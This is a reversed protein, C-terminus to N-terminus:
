HIHQQERMVMLIQSTKDYNGADIREQLEESIDGSRLADKAEDYKARYAEPDYGEIRQNGFVPTATCTCHDHSEVADEDSYTYGLSARMQCFACADGDPVLAYRPKAPDRKVNANVCRDAANKIERNAVNGLLDMVGVTAAGSQVEDLISITASYVADANYGSYAVPQYKSKVKSAARIGAYYEATLAASMDTYSKCTESMIRAVDDWDETDQIRKELTANASQALRAIIDAERKVYAKSVRAM